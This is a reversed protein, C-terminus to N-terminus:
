KDVVMREESYDAREELIRRHLLQCWWLAHTWGMPMVAMQPTLVTRPSIGRGTLGIEGATVVPCSFFRRLAEPMAFNYFANKVDFHGFYVDKDSDARLQGM